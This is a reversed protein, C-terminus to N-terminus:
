WEKLLFRAILLKQIENTGAGIELLKADRMYREVKYEKMYGYGGMIQIAELAAKTAMETAYWKAVGAEKTIPKGKSFLDLVYLIYTRSLEIDRYITAIKEQILQFKSLPRGFQKREKVYKTVIDLCAQAIGVNITGAVARELDLSRMMGFFGQGEPGLMQSEHVRVDEMFIEGTPSCRMGMKELPKGTSLGEMGRELIFATGGALEGAEGGTRTIIIFYDAIPANTIFTKQGNIIYHDGDRVARTKVGLADSGAEPETLGWCGVKEGRILGPLYKEKQEETGLELVNNGFLFMSAGVSLVFGASARSLIENCITGLVTDGHGSAAGGYKEPFRMGLMGLEGMKRYLRMPFEGTRDIEEAIPELENVTFKKVMDIVMKQEDNLELNFM